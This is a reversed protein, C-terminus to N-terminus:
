TCVEVGDVGLAVDRADDKFVAGDQVLVGRSQLPDGVVSIGACVQRRLVAAGLAVQELRAQVVNRGLHM